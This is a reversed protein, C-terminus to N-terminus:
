LASALLEQFAIDVLSILKESCLLLANSGVVDDIAKCNFSLGTPM